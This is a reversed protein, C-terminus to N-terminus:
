SFLDAYEREFIFVGGSVAQGILIEDDMYSLTYKGTTATNGGSLRSPTPLPVSYKFENLALLLKHQMTTRPFVAPTILTELPGAPQLGCIRAEEFTLELTRKIDQSPTFKTNVIFTAGKKKELIVGDGLQIINQIVGEEPSTFRQFVGSVRPQLPLFAHERRMDDMLPAVDLATSYLLRWLGSLKEYDIDQAKDAKELLVMIEGIRPKAQSDWSIDNICQRLEKKLAPLDTESADESILTVASTRAAGESAQARAYRPPRVAPAAAFRTSVVRNAYMGRMAVIFGRDSGQLCSLM